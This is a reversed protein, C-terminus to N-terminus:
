FSLYEEENNEGIRFFCYNGQPSLTLIFSYLFNTPIQQFRGWFSILLCLFLPLHINFM